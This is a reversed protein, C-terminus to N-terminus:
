TKFVTDYMLYKFTYLLSFITKLKKIEELTQLIASKLIKFLLLLNVKKEKDM